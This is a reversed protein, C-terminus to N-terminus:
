DNSKLKGVANYGFSNTPLLSSRSHIKVDGDGWEWATFEGEKGNGNGLKLRTGIGM